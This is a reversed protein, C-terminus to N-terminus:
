SKVEQGNLGIQKTTVGMTVEELIFFQSGERDYRLILAFAVLTWQAEQGIDSIAPNHYVKVQTYPDTDVQKIDVRGGHVTLKKYAQVHDNYREFTTEVFQLRNM